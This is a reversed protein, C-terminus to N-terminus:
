GQLLVSLDFKVSAFSECGMIENWNYPLYLAKKAHHDWKVKFCPDFTLNSVLSECAM